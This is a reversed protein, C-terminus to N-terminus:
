KIAYCKIRWNAETIAADVGTGKNPLIVSGMTSSRILGCKTATKYTVFRRGNDAADAYAAEINVEDGATYGTDGTNCVLVWQVTRPIAGLGHTEEVIAAAAPVSAASSTFTSMATGATVSTVRGKADITVSSPSAYTGATAVDPLTASGSGSTLMRFYTGDYVVAVVCGSGLDGSAPDTGDPKKISVAGLGNVNLTCAGTNAFNTKFAIVRGGLDANAAPTWGAISLVYANASGTTVGYIARPAGPETILQFNTGDYLVEFIQGNVIDGAELAQDTWKKIATAGLGNVNITSAGTNTHNAKVLLWLGAVLSTPAPSLTVTFANSSGGGAGYAIPGPTIHTYNISGAALDSQGLTGELVVVPLAAANLDDTTWPTGEAFTFGRTVTLTLPM